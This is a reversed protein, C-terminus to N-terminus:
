NEGSSKSSKSTEASGTSDSSGTSGTSGTSETTDSSGSSGSGRKVLWWAGGGLVLLAFVIVAVLAGSSMGDDEDAATDAATPSADPASATTSPTATATSPTPTPTATPSPAVPKAGPAAAKLKLVPAPQEPEKGGTPLEIWRSVEGDSYTEVTKFVLEKVDPLQRVKIKYEADVGTKLAPGALTYGDAAPTLKWGKPGEALTVDAPAIGEPLVVRVDTFGASDSEAESVFSLTVNEALAQPKDAEVEAHAAAPAALALTATLALAGALVLRRGARASPRTSRTM